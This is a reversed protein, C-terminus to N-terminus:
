RGHSRARRPASAPGVPAVPAAPAPLGADADGGAVANCTAEECLFRTEDVTWWALPRGRLSWYDDNGYDFFQGRDGDAVLPSNAYCMTDEYADNCHAGDFAHPAVPQLGGLNHGIEHRAANSSCFGDGNRFVVAAKGGLNNLNDPTRSPDDYIAAQGCSGGPAPADLWVLYNRTRESADEVSDTPQITTFGAADLASSVADFTGNGTRAAAKLQATTLPM